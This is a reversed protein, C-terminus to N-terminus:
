NLIPEPINRIRGYKSLLKMILDRKNGNNVSSGKRKSKVANYIEVMEAKKREEVAEFIEGEKRRENTEKRDGAGDKEEDLPPPPPTTFLKQDCLSRLPKWKSKMRNEERNWFIKKTKKKKRTAKCNTRRRMRTFVKKSINEARGSEMLLLYREDSIINLRSIM